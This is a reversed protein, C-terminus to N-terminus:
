EIVFPSTAKLRDIKHEVENIKDLVPEIDVRELNDVIWHEKTKLIEIERRLQKLDLKKIDDEVKRIEEMRRDFEKMTARFEEMEEAVEKFDERLEEHMKELKVQFNLVDEIEHKKMKDLKSEEKDTLSKLKKRLGAIEKDVKEHKPSPPKPIPKDVQKEQVPNEEPKQETKEPPSFNESLVEDMANDVEDPAYGEDRLARITQIKTYGKSLLEKIRDKPDKKDAM